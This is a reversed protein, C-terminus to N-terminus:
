LQVASWQITPSLGPACAGSWQMPGEPLPNEAVYGDDDYLSIRPGAASFETSTRRFENMLQAAGGSSPQGSPSFPLRRSRAPSSTRSPLFDPMSLSQGLPSGLPRSNGATHVPAGQVTYLPEPSGMLSRGISSQRSRSSRFSATTGRSEASSFSTMSSASGNFESWAVDKRQPAVEDLRKGKQGVGQGGAGDTGRTGAGPHGGNPVTLRPRSDVRSPLRRGPSFPGQIQGRACVAHLACAPPIPHARVRRPASADLVARTNVPKADADSPVAQLGAPKPVSIDNAHVASAMPRDDDPNFKTGPIHRSVPAGTMVQKSRKNLTYLQKKRSAFRMMVTNPKTSRPARKPFWQNSNSDRPSQGFDEVFKRPSIKARTSNQLALESNHRAFIMSEDQLQAAGTGANPPVIMKHFQVEDAAQANQNSLQSLSMRPGSADAGDDYSGTFSEAVIGPSQLAPYRSMFSVGDRSLPRSGSMAEHSLAAM